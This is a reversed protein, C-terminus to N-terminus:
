TYKAHLGGIISMILLQRIAVTKCKELGFCLNNKPPERPLYEGQCTATFPM